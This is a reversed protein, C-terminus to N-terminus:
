HLPGGIAPGLPSLPTDREPLRASGAVTNTGLTPAPDSDPGLVVEGDARGLAGTPLWRFAVRTGAPVMDRVLAALWASWARREATTAAIDIRIRGVLYAADDAPPDDKCPLRARGLVLRTGLEAPSRGFGGVIAPLASGRCADGGVLALGYDATADVVRFRAAGDAAAAVLCALLRELGARTGRGSALEAAHSVICRKAEVGLADDWPLGLWRAVYDLWQAGATRPHINDGLAAIRADVEGTTTELVGVLERLFDGPAAADRRYLAPLHDMMSRGPYLIELSRVVPLPAGPAALLRLSIWLGAERVDHLPLAFTAGEASQADGAFALTRQWDGAKTGYLLELTTGAPLEAKAEARLWRLGDSVEPAALRPTVISAELVSGDVPVTEVLSYRRLEGRLGNRLSAAVLTVYLADRKAAVGTVWMRTADKPPRVEFDQLRVGESDLTLLRWGRQGRAALVLRGSPDRALHAGRQCDGWGAIGIWSTRKGSASYWGLREGRSTLLVFADVRRLYVFASPSDVDQLAIADRDLAGNCGVHVIRWQCGRGVLAYIGQRGDAAVDAIRGDGVAVEFRLVLSEDYCQLARAEASAVWFREGLPVIRRANSIPGPAHLERPSEDGPELRLLHGARDAWVVDGALTAAPAAARPSVHVQASPAFPPLPRIAFGGDSERADAQAFRCARWQAATRFRYALPTM